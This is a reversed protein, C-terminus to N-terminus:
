PATIPISINLYFRGESCPCWVKTASLMRHILILSKSSAFKFYPSEFCSSTGCAVVVANLTHVAAISKVCSSAKQFNEYAVQQRMEYIVSAWMVVCGFSYCIDMINYGYLWFSANVSGWIFKRDGWEINWKVSFGLNTFHQAKVLKIELIMLTIM